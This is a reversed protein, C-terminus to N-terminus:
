RIRPLREMWPHHGHAQGIANALWLRQSHDLHPLVATFDQEDKPRLGKAKYFLQVEPSLYPIGEPTVMGLSDIPRRVHTDRRSVWNQGESVDLMIQIRWPESPGPRCWIDHIPPALSEGSAWPRLTGPPDAAWWEWIPLVQQVALQDRRLMLIDIDEHERYAHGVSLEMAYGGAVWWPCTLTSFLAVVESLPAPDWPGWPTETRGMDSNDCATGANGDVHPHLQPGGHGPALATHGRQGAPVRSGSM